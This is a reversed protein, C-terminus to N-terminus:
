SNVWFVNIDNSYFVVRKCMEWEMRFIMLGEIVRCSVGGCDVVFEKMREYVVGMIFLFM